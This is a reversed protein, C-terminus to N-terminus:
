RTYHRSAAAHPPGDTALGDNKKAIAAFQPLRECKCLWGVDNEAAPGGICFRSHANTREAGLPRCEFSPRWRVVVSLKRQQLVYILLATTQTLVTDHTQLCCNTFHTCHTCSSEQRPRSMTKNSVAMFSESGRMQSAGRTLTMIVNSDKNYIVRVLM